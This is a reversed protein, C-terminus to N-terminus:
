LVTRRKELAAKSQQLAAEKENLDEKLSKYEEQLKRGYRTQQDRKLWQLDKLQQKVRIAEVTNTVPLRGVQRLTEIFDSKFAMRVWELRMKSNDLARGTTFHM